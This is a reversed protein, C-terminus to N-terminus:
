HGASQQGTDGGPRAGNTPTASNKGGPKGSPTGTPSGATPTSGPKGSGTQSPSPLQSPGWKEFYTKAPVVFAGVRVAGTSSFDFVLQQQEGDRLGERGSSLVASANGEGGLNVSGHAPVVLPGGGKAPSLKVPLTKGALTIGKLTQEDSSNNFVHATIVAPGETDQDPQTIVNVNQVKIDGVTVAANDPKVELTQPSTGAACASLPAISLVLATAALAGRRLSSSM